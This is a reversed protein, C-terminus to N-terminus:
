GGYLTLTQTEPNPESVYGAGTTIMYITEGDSGYQYRGPYEYSQEFIGSTLSKFQGYQDLIRFNRCEMTRVDGSYAPDFNELFVAVNGKFLVNPAGLEYICLLPDEETELDTVWQEITTNGTTSSVGCRLLMRYWRGAEWTYEPLYHVGSGEGDFTWGTEGSPYILKAHVVTQDGSADTCYVDWLSLISNTRGDSSKQLGAYGAVGPYDTRVDAYQAKLSSYDLDFNAPCCYTANPLFDAKFEVSYASFSQGETDMWGDIYPSRSQSISNYARIEDLTPLTMIVNWARDTVVAAPEIEAPTPMVEEIEPTPIVEAIEPTPIIETIEPTPSEEAVEPTSIVLPDLNFASPASSPSATVTATHNTSHESITDFVDYTIVALLVLWLMYKMVKM